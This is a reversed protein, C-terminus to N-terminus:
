HIVLLLTQLHREILFSSGENPVIGSTVPADPCTAPMFTIPNPHERMQAPYRPALVMTLAM